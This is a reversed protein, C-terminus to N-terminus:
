MLILMRSFWVDCKPPFEGFPLENITYTWFFAEVSYVGDEFEFRFLRLEQPFVSLCNLMGIFVLSCVQQLYGMRGTVGGQGSTIQFFYLTLIVAYAACQAIRSAILVPQRRLNLFSRSVLLPLSKYIPLINNKVNSLDDHLMKAVQGNGDNGDDNAGGGTSSAAAGVSAPAGDSEGGRKSIEKWAEVLGDVRARSVVELDERRLDVSSLDLAFDAPNSLRPVAYSMRAFHDIMGKVSGHYIVRGGRALLLINDFLPFIDSRPQHISCVVTRGQAAIGKLTLMM